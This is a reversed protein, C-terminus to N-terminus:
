MSCFRSNLNMADFSAAVPEALPEALLALLDFRGFRRQLLIALLVVRDRELVALVDDHLLERVQVRRHRLRLGLAELLLRQVALQLREAALVAASSVNGAIRDFVNM